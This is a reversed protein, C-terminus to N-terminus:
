EALSPLRAAWSVEDETVIFEMIHDLLGEKSWPVADQATSSFCVVGLLDATM